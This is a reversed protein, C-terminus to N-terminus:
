HQAALVPEAPMEVRQAMRALFIEVIRPDFQSAACRRLEAVAEEHSRAAKYTRRDVIASYSDVVTLIRAALPIAEGCLGDPYGKGDYREHHHRVIKAADQLHQIPALIREGIVPHQRMISWEEATLKAPKKLIADPIGIKGIDHLIAGFHLAELEAGSLGLERGVELAMHAVNQVHDGTYSDKAEVANALSLVTELYARELEDFLQARRLASATQDGISRALRIKEPTFPERTESRQEGLLLLGLRRHDAHLPILCISRCLGLFLADRELDSMASEDARVVQPDNQEMLHQCFPFLELPDRRGVRLRHGLVRRPYIARVVVQDNELLLVGALTIHITEVAQRTVLKLISDFDPPVTALARSLDFLSSLEARRNQEAKFLRTNELSTQEAVVRQRHEAEEARRRENVEAQLAANAQALEATREQVRVELEDRARRLAMEARVRETVQRAVVLRGTLEGRRDRLPSIRLNFWRQEAGTGLTVEEHAAAVGIYREVLDHWPALVQEIPAGILMSVNLGLLAQAAPNVDIIRNRPDLVFVADNMSEVLIDRAVPVVDLLQHRAVDWAFAVGSVTFAVPTLDFFPFPSAHSLYLANGIWPALAGIVLIVAQGRYLSPARVITRLLLVTAIFMLAYSYATHVWFWDGYSLSMISVSGVSQAVMQSWVLGHWDNTWVLALTTLPEVALAILVRPRLWRENGTYLISFLLWAFPITVIGLYETKAWFIQTSLNASSLEFAYGISWECLALTLLGFPRAARVDHRQWAILTLVASIVAAIVLLFVYPTYQFHM